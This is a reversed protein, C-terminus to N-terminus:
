RSRVRRASRSGRQPHGPCWRRRAWGAFWTDNTPGDGAGLATAATLKAGTGAAAHHWGIFTFGDRSPKAPVALQADGLTAAYVLVDDPVGSGGNADFHLLYNNVTVNQPAAVTGTNVIAGRNTITGDDAVTGKNVILGTGANTATVGDPIRLTSGEPITLSGANSLSGFPTSTGVTIPSGGGVASGGDDGGTATVRAQAGIEVDAGGGGFAGSGIGAGGGASTATM